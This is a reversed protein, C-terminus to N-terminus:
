PVVNLGAFLQTSGSGPDQFGATVALGGGIQYIAGLSWPNHNEGFHKWRFEGLLGLDQTLLFNAGIFPRIASGDAGDDNFTDWRAGAHLFIAGPRVTGMLNKSAVLYTTAGQAPGLYGYGGISLAPTFGPGERVFQYQAAIGFFSDIVDSRGIRDREVGTWFLGAHFRQNFGRFIGASFQRDSNGTVVAQQFTGAGILWQNAPITYATPNLVLGVPAFQQTEGAEEVGPGRQAAVPSTLALAAGLMGCVLTATRM